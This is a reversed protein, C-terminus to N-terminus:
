NDFIVTQSKEPSVIVRNEILWNIALESQGRVGEVTGKRLIEM